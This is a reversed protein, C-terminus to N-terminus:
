AMEKGNEENTEQPVENGHVVLTRLGLVSELALTFHTHSNLKIKPCSRVILPVNEPRFETSVEM